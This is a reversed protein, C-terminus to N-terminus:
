DEEDCDCEFPECNCGHCERDHEDAARIQDALSYAAQEPASWVRVGPWGEWDTCDGCDLAARGTDLDVVPRYREYTTARVSAARTPGPSHIVRLPGIKLMDEAPKEVESGAAFWFGSEYRNSQWANGQGDLVVTDAPCAALGALTIIEM